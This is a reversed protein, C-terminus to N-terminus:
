PSQATVDPSALFWIKSHGTDVEPVEATNILAHQSQM